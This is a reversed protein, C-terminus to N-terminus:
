CSYIYFLNFNVPLFLFIIKGDYKSDNSGNLGDEENTDTLEERSLDETSDDTEQLLKSLKRRDHKLYHKSFKDRLDGFNGEIKKVFESFMENLSNRNVEINTETLLANDNIAEINQKLNTLRRQIELMRDEIDGYHEDTIVCQFSFLFLTVTKFFDMKETQIFYM